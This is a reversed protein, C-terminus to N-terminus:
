HHGPPPPEAGLLQLRDGACGASWFGEDLLGDRGHRNSRRLHAAAVGSAVKEMMGASMGGSAQALAALQGPDMGYALLASVLSGASTGVFLDAESLRVDGNALAASLGIMWAIGLTGGGGM